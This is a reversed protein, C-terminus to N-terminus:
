QLNELCWPIGCLYENPNEQLERKLEQRTFWKVQEVEDEQIQFQDAPQDITLTYYQTFHNHEGTVRIKQNKKPQINELGIEEEAEKVINEDYSEGEDITGAVAPGWKGPHHSKSFHRQALLIDGGSNTIWLASVRYIDEQVLTGREKLGIVGDQDNVVVIRQKTM